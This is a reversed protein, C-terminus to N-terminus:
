IGKSINWIWNTLVLMIVAIAVWKIRLFREAKQYANFFSDKKTLLDYGVWLPGILMISLIILGFPNWYLSQMVDGQLIALVARSSGCSPCPIHTVQRILCPTALEDHVLHPQQILLGTWTLGATCAALLVGYLTRRRM